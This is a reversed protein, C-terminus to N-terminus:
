KQEKEPRRLRTAANYARRRPVGLDRAVRAAADRTSLGEVLASQVHADVEDDSAAPPAPAPGLVIVHEGRAETSVARAVADSLEGRWVEEYLKTLERAVAVERLPGCVALLDSLTGLVRSPAEFLVCSRREGALAAIRQRRAPGRRPLFGEFVFRDTPLGSLVLATLAASPGPVVEVALGADLCARVLREGPDSIGPMGADTVYAVRQGAMVADVVVQASERENHAHVARLRGAAAVGAHTLLARTRRTDEAAIVDAERLMEVARPSLDGLNGIPTAVLVLAGRPPDRPGVISSQDTM